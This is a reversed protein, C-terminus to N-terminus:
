PAQVVRAIPTPFRIALPAPFPGHKVILSGKPLMTAQQCLDGLDKYTDHTTEAATTRGVALTSVNGVVERHVQSAFQEASFLSLQMGRGRAAIEILNGRIGSIGRLPAFKNLEDVVVIVPERVPVDGGIIQELESGDGVPPEQMLEDVVAAFM